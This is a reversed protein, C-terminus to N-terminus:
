PFGITIVNPDAPAEVLECEEIRYESRYNKWKRMEAEIYAEAATLFKFAKAPIPEPDKSYYVLWIKM